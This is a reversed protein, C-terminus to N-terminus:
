GDVLTFVSKVELYSEVADPGNERGCGSEQYGGRMTFDTIAHVNIGIRGARIRGAVAYVRGVDRTFASGALGYTTDNALAIAEDVHDFPLAAVQTGCSLARMTM